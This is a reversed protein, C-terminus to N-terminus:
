ATRGEDKCHGRLLYRGRDFTVLRNRDILFVLVQGSVVDTDRFFGKGLEFFGEESQDRPVSKM